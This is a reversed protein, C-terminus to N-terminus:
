ILGSRVYRKDVSQLWTHHRSELEEDAQVRHGDGGAGWGDHVVKDDQFCFLFILM